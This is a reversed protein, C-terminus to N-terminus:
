LSQVPLRRFFFFFAEVCLALCKPPLPFKQIFVSARWLYGEGRKGLGVELAGLQAKLRLRVVCLAIDGAVMQNGEEAIHNNTVYVAAGDIAPALLQQACTVLRGVQARDM